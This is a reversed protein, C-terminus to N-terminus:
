WLDIVVPVRSRPAWGSAPQTWWLVRDSDPATEGVPLADAAELFEVDGLRDSLLGRLADLVSTTQALDALLVQRTPSPLLLDARPQGDSQIPSTPYSPTAPESSSALAPGQTEPRHWRPLSQGIVTEPTRLADVVGSPTDARLNWQRAIDRRSGLESLAAIQDEAQSPSRAVVRIVLKGERALELARRNDIPAPLPSAQALTLEAPAPAVPADSPADSSTRPENRAIELPAPPLDPTPAQALPASIPSRSHTALWAIAATGVLALSAASALVGYDAWWSRRPRSYSSVVISPQDRHRAERAAAAIADATLRAAVADLLGAPAPEDSLASLRERDSRMALVSAKVVPDTDLARLLRAEDVPDLTGEVLALLAADDWRGPGTPPVSPNSGPSTM